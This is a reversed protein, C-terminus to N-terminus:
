KSEISVASGIGIASLEIQYINGSGNLTSHLGEVLASYTLPKTLPQMTFDRESTFFLYKGDPSIRPSYDRASTNVKPGLNRSPTWVGNHNNSVYIDYNGFGDPRAYSGILLFSEDPAILCDLEFAESNIEDGLHEVKEYKGNVPRARYIDSDGPGGKAGARTSSFYITGDATVSAFDENSDSNIPAGLNKPEGWGHKTREVVWIDFDHKPKKDVPRDSAFYLRSGDPSLVPDSDRYVGSFPAIEPTSWKGGVFHSALILYQYHRPVSLSFFCTKGDPTFVGGFEDDRTSIIGEGFLRPETLLGSVAYPPISPKVARVTTVFGEIPSSLVVILILRRASSKVNM